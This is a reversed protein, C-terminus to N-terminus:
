QYYHSLIPLVASWAPALGKSGLRKVYQGTTTLMNWEAIYQCGESDLSVDNLKSFTKGGHLTITYLFTLNNNITFVQIHNFLYYFTDMM